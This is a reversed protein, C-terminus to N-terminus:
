RKLAIVCHIVKHFRTLEAMQAMPTRKDKKLAYNYVDKSSTENENTHKGCWPQPHAKQNPPPQNTTFSLPVSALSPSLAETM